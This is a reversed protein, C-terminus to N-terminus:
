LDFSVYKLVIAISYNDIMFQVIPASIRTM